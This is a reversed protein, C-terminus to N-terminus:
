IDLWVKWGTRVHGSVCERHVYLYETGKVVRVLGAEVAEDHEAAMLEALEADAEAKASAESIEKKWKEAFEQMATELEKEMGFPSKEEKKAM